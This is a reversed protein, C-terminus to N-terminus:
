LGQLISEAGLRGSKMAANISGNMLHDGIIITTDSIKRITNNNVSEQSPLAYQINYTKLHKWNKASSIWQSMEDKVKKIIDIQNTYFGEKLSVSILHGEKAYKSSTNSLCVMNNVIGNESPSLAIANQKFPLETSSFYLNSTSRRANKTTTYKDNIGYADTAIVIQDAEIIEGNEIHVQTGDILVVKSNCRIKRSDLHNAIQKPIEEMGLAPIAADGESFMKFVFDFMRRSTTLSKELFIGAYFPQLFEKIVTDSFGYDHKLAEMTSIEKGQFIEDISKRNLKTKTLLIRIKDKITAADTMITPMLSSIQRMPDGIYDLKGKDRLLVAGPNFSKFNLSKYDLIKRAEPYATLFVQFGRDMRYGDVVDTKIRGGIRKTAEIIQYDRGAKSLYYAVTLGSVGGGIILTKTM